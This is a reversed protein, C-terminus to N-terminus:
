IESNLPGMMKLFNGPGGVLQGDLEIDVVVGGCFRCWRVVDEANPMLTNNARYVEILDHHGENCKNM